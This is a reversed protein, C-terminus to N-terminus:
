LRHLFFLSGFLRLPQLRQIIVLTPAQGAVHPCLDDLLM